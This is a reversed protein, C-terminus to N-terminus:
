PRCDTSATARGGTYTITVTVSVCGRHELLINGFVAQGDYRTEYPTGKTRTAPRFAEVKVKVDKLYTMAPSPTFRGWAALCQPSHRLEVEGLYHQDRTNVEVRDLTSVGPYHSCRTKKPDRNDEVPDVGGEFRALPITSPASQLPHRLPSGGITLWHAAAVAISVAMVSLGAVLTLRQRTRWRSSPAPREGEPRSIAEPLPAESVPLGLELRTQEWLEHWPGLDDVDCAKLYASAVEWRPLRHGAAAAALTAASYHAKKSLQRYAPRGVQSRVKRLEAAFREIPGREPDIEREPRGM